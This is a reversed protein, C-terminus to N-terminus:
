GELKNRRKRIVAFISGAGILVVAGIIFGLYNGSANGVFQYDTFDFIGTGSSQLREVAELALLAQETSMLNDENETLGHKYMGNGLRFKDLGDLLSIGNKIFRSDEGPNIGLACLAIIVQSVSESNENGYSVFTGGNSMKESLWTLSKEIVPKVDEGDKYPALAQLCMATIDVDGSSGDALPISGDESQVEVLRSILNERTLAAGEPVEYDKSDLAILAYALGNSGQQGPDDFEYTGEAILNVPEGAANKGFATPDGGLALVTLAIRHYETAKTEELCGKEEYQATVYEEMRNLYKGYAGKEGSFALTIAIWDCVSNGATMFEEDALLDKNSIEKISKATQAIKDELGDASINTASAMEGGCINMILILALCICVAKLKM